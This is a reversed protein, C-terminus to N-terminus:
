TKDGEYATGGESENEIVLRVTKTKLYMYRYTATRGFQELHPM